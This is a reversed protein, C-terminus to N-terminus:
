ISTMLKDLFFVLPFIALRKFLPKTRSVGIPPLFINKQKVHYKLLSVSTVM